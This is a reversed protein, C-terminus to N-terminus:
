NGIVLRQGPTIRNSQLNNLEKLKAVSLGEYKKSIEWLSDGPQVVHIKGDAIPQTGSNNNASQNEAVLSSKVWITLKQGAYIRNGSLSNWNRIDNVYVRHKEAITSLADGSRVQYIIKERGNANTATSASTNSAVSKSPIAAPKEYASAVNSNVWITLKQGAYIRSGRINNWTRLDDTYVRFNQAISGLADGSRVRYIIKEKGYTSGPTNQTLYQFYEKDVTKASDLIVDFNAAMFSSKDAPIILPYDKVNDPVAGRRLEPNLKQLDEECENIQAALAKMSLFQSVYVTDVEIAYEPIEERLNHEDIYNMAYMVAVFQPVYSRTERPLYRYISWFNRKYGSRRIAKRVNGPGCNYAALALEWDGFMNYLDKLYKCAAETSKEPHQREDVYWNQQLGYMRGTSSVFQWLGVAAARSKAIPNLGSEVISLYKLEDPLNYQQLYKEFIPFYIDRRRIMLRTYERDKVTFYDAFAKVRENFHLPIESSICSIRDQILDYSADPVYEYDYDPEFLQQDSSDNLVSSFHHYPMSWAPFCVVWTILVFIVNSTYHM